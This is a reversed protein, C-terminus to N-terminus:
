DCLDFYCPQGNWPRYGRHGDWYRVGYEDAKRKARWVNDPTLRSISASDLKPVHTGRQGYGDHTLMSKELGMLLAAYKTEKLVLAFRNDTINWGGSAHVIRADPRAAVDLLLREVHQPSVLASKDAIVGASAKACWRVVDAAEALQVYGGTRAAWRRSVPAYTSTTVFLTNNAKELHGAGYLAAVETQNIKRNPAYRKAQVLTLVDGLPARQVLRLDVGEDGRGPGLVTEFGQNQFIRFLLTEFDRWGLRQLDEPRKAFQEYLEQYVDATDDQILSCVWQWHFYSKFAEILSPDEPYISMTVGDINEYHYRLRGLLERFGPEHGEPDEGCLVTYMPGECWFMSVVPMTSPESETHSLYDKFGCDHWLERAEM